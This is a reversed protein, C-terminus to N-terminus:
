NDYMIEIRNFCPKLETTGAEITLLLASIPSRQHLCPLRACLNAPFKHRWIFFARVGAVGMRFPCPNALDLDLWKFYFTKFSYFKFTIFVILVLVPKPFLAGQFKSINTQSTLLIYLICMKDCDILEDRPRCHSLSVLNVITLGATSHASSKRPTVFM